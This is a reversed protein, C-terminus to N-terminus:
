KKVRSLDIGQLNKRVGAVFRTITPHIYFDELEFFDPYQYLTQAMIEAARDPAEGTALVNLMIGMSRCCEAYEGPLNAKGREGLVRLLFEKIKIFSPNDSDNLKACLARVVAMLEQDPLVTEMRFFKPLKAAAQMLLPITEKRRGQNLLLLLKEHLQGAKLALPSPVFKEAKRGTMDFLEKVSRIVDYMAPTRYFMPDEPLEPELFVARALSGASEAAMKMENRAMAINFHVAGKTPPELELLDQYIAVAQKPGLKRRALHGMYIIEKCARQFYREEGAAAFFHERATEYDGNSLAAQGMLIRQEPPLSDRDRDALLLLSDEAMSTLKRAAPHDEGLVSALDLKMMDGAIRAVASVNRDGPEGYELRPVEEAKILAKGFNRVADDLLKKVDESDPSAGQRIMQKAQLVRVQAIEKNPEPIADAVEEAQRFRKLAHPYRNMRVYVRGSELYAGPDKPYLDIAKKCCGVAKEFDGAERLKRAMELMEEAEAKRELMRKEDLKVKIDDLAGDLHPLYESLYKGLEEVRELVQEQLVQKRRAASLGALPEQKRLIFAGSVGFEALAVIANERKQVFQIDEYVPVCKSLIAMVDRNAKDLIGSVSEYFEAIDRERRNGTKEDVKEMPPGVLFFGQQTMLLKAVDRVCGLFEGKAPHVKVDGFGLAKFAIEVRERLVKSVIYIHFPEGLFPALAERYANKVDMSLM